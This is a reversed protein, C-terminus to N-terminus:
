DAESVVEVDDLRANVTVPRNFMMVIADVSRRYTKIVRGDIGDCMGGKIRIVTGPPIRMEPTAIQLPANLTDHLHQMIASGVPTPRPQGLVSIVGPMMYVWQWPDLAIDVHLFLYSPFWSRTVTNGRKTIKEFTFQHWDLKANNLSRLLPVTETSLFRLVYHEPHRRVVSGDPTWPRSALLQEATSGTRTSAPIVSALIPLRCEGVPPRTSESIADNALRDPNKIDLTM